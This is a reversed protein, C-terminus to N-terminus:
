EQGKGASNAELANSFTRPEVSKILAQREFMVTIYKTACLISRSGEGNVGGLDLRTDYGKRDVPRGPQDFLKNSLSLANPM